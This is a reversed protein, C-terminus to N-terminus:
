TPSDDFAGKLVVSDEDISTASNTVMTPAVAFAINSSITFLSLVFVLLISKKILNKMHHIKDYLLKFTLNIM